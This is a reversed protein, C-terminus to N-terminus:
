DFLLVGDDGIFCFINGNKAGSYLRHYDYVDKSIWTTGGDRTLLLSARNQSVNGGVIYFTNVDSIVLGTYVNSTLQADDSVSLLTWNVGGDTTKLVIPTTNTASVFGVAYGITASAMQVQSIIASSSSITGLNVTAQTWTTGLDSTYFIKGGYGSAVGKLENIFHISYITNMGISAKNKTWTAGGDNSRIICAGYSSNGGVVFITDQNLYYIDRFNYGSISLTPKTWTAGGNSTVYLETADGAIIGKNETFFDTAFLATTVPSNIEDFQSGGNTSKLVAGEDGVIYGVNSSPFDISLLFQDTSTLVSQIDSEVPHPTTDEKPQHVCSVHLILCSWFILFYVKVKM